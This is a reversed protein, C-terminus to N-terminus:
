AEFLIMHVGLGTHWVYLVIGRSFRAIGMESPVKSMKIWRCLTRRQSAWHVLM